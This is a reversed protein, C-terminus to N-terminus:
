VLQTGFEKQEPREEYPVIVREIKSVLTVTGGCAYGILNTIVSISLIKYM